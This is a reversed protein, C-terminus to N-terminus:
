DKLSAFDDVDVTKRRRHLYVVLALTLSVEASTMAMIMLSFVQGDAGGWHGSGGVFVLMAANLMIEIGILLMIVNSKWVLVCVLGLCFLLAALILVHALPIM